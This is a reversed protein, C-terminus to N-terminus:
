KISQLEKLRQAINKLLDKQCLNIKDVTAKKTTKLEYAQVALTGLVADQQALELAKAQAEALQTKM